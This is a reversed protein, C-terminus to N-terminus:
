EKKALASCASSDESPCTDVTPPKDLTFVHCSLLSVTVTVPLQVLLRRDAASGEVMVMTMAWGLTM